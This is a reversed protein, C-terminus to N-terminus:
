ADGIRAGFITAGVKWLTIGTYGTTNLTPAVGGNTKWTVAVSSWTITFASGDDVMLTISQGEAWTGATPTSSGTLTWTQVTGNTPSLAPTTSSPIAYVQETYGANITPGSVTPSTGFVLAGSGTEDTVASALNASSPTGLFTAVGTGLSTIGTGGNAAPLTGTVDNALRVSLTNDAGNITKNTLTQAFDTAVAREAPYTVFVDKANSAFSVASGGSSSELITDRSLSTGSATYTGIGVEWTNATPDVITYYTTNGDGIVSFSQYGAVAGALTLAGTGATTSTEKVRDKLVLPM